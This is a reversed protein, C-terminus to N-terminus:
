IVLCWAEQIGEDYIGASLTCEAALEVVEALHSLDFITYEALIVFNILCFIYIYM